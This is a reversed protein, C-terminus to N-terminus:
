YNVFALDSLFGGEEGLQEGAHCPPSPLPTRPWTPANRQEGNSPFHLRGVPFPGWPPRHHPLSVCGQGVAHTRRLHPFATLSTSAQSPRNESRICMDTNTLAHGAPASSSARAPPAPHAAPVCYMWHHSCSTSGMLPILPKLVLGHKQLSTHPSATQFVRRIWGAPQLSVYTGRSWSGSDRHWM